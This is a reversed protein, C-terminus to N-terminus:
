QKEPQYYEQNQQHQYQHQHQGAYYRPQYNHPRGNSWWANAWGHKYRATFIGMTALDFAINSARYLVDPNNANM